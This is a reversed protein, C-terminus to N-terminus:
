KFFIASAISALGCGVGLVAGFSDAKVKLHSLAWTPIQRVRLVNVAMLVAAIGGLLAVGRTLTDFCSGPLLALGFLRLVMCGVAIRLGWPVWHLYTEVEDIKAKADRVAREWERDVFAVGCEPCRRSTNGRMDYGCALCVPLFGPEKPKALAPSRVPPGYQFLM